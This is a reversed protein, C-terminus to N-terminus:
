TQEEHVVIRRATAHSKHMEERVRFVRSVLAPDNQSATVTVKDGVKPATSSLPISVELQLAVVQRDGSLPLSAVTMNRLQVRCKGTYITSTADVYQGTTENLTQGTVRTITCTDTMLQEAVQRGRALIGTISV